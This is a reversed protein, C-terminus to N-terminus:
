SYRVANVTSFPSNNQVGLTLSCSKTVITVEQDPGRDSGQASFSKIEYPNLLVHLRLPSPVPNNLKALRLVVRLSLLIDEAYPVM